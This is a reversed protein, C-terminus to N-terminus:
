RRSLASSRGIASGIHIWACGKYNQLNGSSMAYCSLRSDQNTQTALCHCCRSVDKDKWIPKRVRKEKTKTLTRYRGRLTSEAETFGHNQKIERYSIGQSRLRLLELDRSTDRRSGEGCVTAGTGNEISPRLIDHEIYDISGMMGTYPRHSSGEMPDFESEILYNPLMPDNALRLSSQDVSSGTLDFAIANTDQLPPYPSLMTHGKSPTDYDLDFIEDIDIFNPQGYSRSHQGEWGVQAPFSDLAAPTPENQHWTPLSGHPAYVDIPHNEPMSRVSQPPWPPRYPLTILQSDLDPHGEGSRPKSPAPLIAKYRHPSPGEHRIPYLANDFGDGAGDVSTGPTSCSGHPTRPTLSPTSIYSSTKGSTTPKSKSTAPLVLPPPDPPSALFYTPNLYLDRPSVTDTAAPEYAADRYSFNSDQIFPMSQTELTHHTPPLYDFFHHSTNNAMANHDSHTHTPHQAHSQESPCLSKYSHCPLTHSHPNRPRIPMKYANDLTFSAQPRDYSSDISTHHLQTASNPSCGHMGTPAPLQRRSSYMALSRSCCVCFHDQDRPCHSRRLCWTQCMPRLIM